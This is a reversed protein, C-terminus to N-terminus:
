KGGEDGISYGGMFCNLMSDKQKSDEVAKAREAMLKRRVTEREM